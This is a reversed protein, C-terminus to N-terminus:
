KFWKVLGEQKDKLKGFVSEIREKTLDLNQKLYSKITEAKNSNYAEIFGSVVDKREQGYSSFTLIMLTLLVVCTTNIKFLNKQFKM